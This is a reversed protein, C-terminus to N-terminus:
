AKGWLRDLSVQGKHKALAAQANDTLDLVGNLELAGVHQGLAEAVRAPLSTLGNLRLDCETTALIEATEPSLATLGNLSLKQWSCKGDSNTKGTLAEAVAAPLDRLGNLSLWDDDMWGQHNALAAAAAESLASVGDLLLEGVHEALVRALDDSLTTLGALSLGGACNPCSDTNEADHWVLVRATDISLSKLSNLYLCQWFDDRVAGRRGTLAQAVEPSLEELGNLSLVFPAADTPICTAASSILVDAAEAALAKVGNLSLRFASADSQEWGAAIAKALEVSLDSLGDLVIRTLNGAFLTAAVGPDLKTVASLDLTLQELEALYIAANGDLTEYPWRVRYVVNGHFDAHPEGKNFGGNAWRRALANQRIHHNMEEVTQPDLSELAQEGLEFDCEPFGCLVRYGEDSIHILGRLELRGIHRNAFHYAADTTLGILGNLLLDGVLPALERAAADSLLKVGNLSLLRPPVNFLPTFGLMKEVNDADVLARVLEIPLETLGDLYLRQSRSLSQAAACSLEKLGNLSLGGQYARFSQAAADTLSTLGDLNLDLDVPCKALIEAAADEIATFEPLDVSLEDELFQEAIERTLLTGDHM